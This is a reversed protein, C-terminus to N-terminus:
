KSPGPKIKLLQFLLTTRSGFESFQKSKIKAAGGQSFTIMTCSVLYIVDAILFNMSSIGLEPIKWFLPRKIHACCPEAACTFGHPEFQTFNLSSLQFDVQVTQYNM